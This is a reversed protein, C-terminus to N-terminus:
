IIAGANIWGQRRALWDTFRTLPITLALFILGAFVMHVFKFDQSQQNEATLVVEIVGLTSILSTDKQLSVFDNLLPPLVRRVAQPFVVHRMTQGYTLGLARASARQSPHVSQIGARFVEAVYASYTLTLAVIGLVFPSTPMGQLRLSPIGFGVLYLVILVPLGRFLDVYFTALFRLPFFVPGPLTRVIALVAAFVLVLVESIVMIQVNLWLARLLAPLGDWGARLDFFSDRTRPWGSSQHVVVVIATLVMASSILAIVWSRRTRARRYAERERQRQSPQWSTATV